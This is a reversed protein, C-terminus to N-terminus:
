GEGKRDTMERWLVRGGHSLLMAGGSIALPLLPWWFWLVLPTVVAGVLLTVCWFCDLFSGNFRYRLKYFVNEPGNEYYLMAALRWCALIGVAVKLAM